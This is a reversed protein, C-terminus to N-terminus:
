TYETRKSRKKIGNISDSIACMKIDLCLCFVRGLSLTYLNHRRKFYNGIIFSTIFYSHQYKVNWCNLYFLTSKATKNDLLFKWIALLFSFLLNLHFNWKVFCWVILLNRRIPMFSKSILNILTHLMEERSATCKKWDTM